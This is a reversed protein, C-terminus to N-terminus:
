RPNPLFKQPVLCDGYEMKYSKLEEFRDFWAKNQLKKRDTVREGKSRLMKTYDGEETKSISNQDQTNRGAANPSGSNPTLPHSEPTVYQPRQSTEISQTPAYPTQPHHPPPPGTNHNNYYGDRDRDPGQPNHHMEMENPGGYYYGQNPPYGHHAGHGPYPPPPHYGGPGQQYQGYYPAEQPSGYYADYGRPSSMPHHDGGSAQYAVTPYGQYNPDRPHVTGHPNMPTSNANQPPHISSPTDSNGSGQANTPPHPISSPAGRVHSSVSQMQDEKVPSMDPPPMNTKAAGQDNQLEVRQKTGIDNKAKIFARMFPSISVANASDVNGEVHQKKSSREPTSTAGNEEQFSEAKRAAGSNMGEDQLDSTQVSQREFNGQSVERERNDHGEMVPTRRATVTEDHPRKQGAITVQANSPSGMEGGAYMGSGGLQSQHNTDGYHGRNYNDYYGGPPGYHPNYSGSPPGMHGYRHPSRHMGHPSGMPPPPPPPGNDYGHYTPPPPPHYTSGQMHPPPPPGHHGHGPYYPPDRPNYHQWQQHELGPPGSPPYYSNGDMNTNGSPPYYPGRHSSRANPSHYPYSDHSPQRPTETSAPNANVPGTAANSGQNQSVPIGISAADAELQSRLQQQASRAKSPTDQDCVRTAVAGNAGENKEAASESTHTYTDNYPAAENELSSDATRENKAPTPMQASSLHVFESKQQTKANVIVDAEDMDVAPASLDTM